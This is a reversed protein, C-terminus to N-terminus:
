VRVNLQGVQGSESLSHLVQFRFVIWIQLAPSTAPQLDVAPSLGLRGLLTTALSEQPRIRAMNTTVMGQLGIRAM